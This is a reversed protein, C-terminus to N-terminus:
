AKGFTFYRLAKKQNKSNVLTKYYNKSLWEFLDKEKWNQM